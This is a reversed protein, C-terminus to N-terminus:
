ITQIYIVCAEWVEFTPCSRRPLLLCCDLNSSLSVHQQCLRFSGVLIRHTLKQYVLRRTPRYLSLLRWQHPANLRHNNQHLQLIPWSAQPDTDPGGLSSDHALCVSSPRRYTSDRRSTPRSALRGSKLAFCCAPVTNWRVSTYAFM